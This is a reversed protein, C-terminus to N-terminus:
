FKATAAGGCPVHGPAARRDHARCGAFALALVQRPPAQSWRAHLFPVAESTVTNAKGREAPRATKVPSVQSSIVRELRDLGAPVTLGDAVIEDHRRGVAQKPPAGQRQERSARASTAEGTRTEPAHRCSSDTRNPSQVAIRSTALIKYGNHGASRDSARSARGFVGAVLRAIQRSISPLARPQNDPHGWAPHRPGTSRRRTPPISPGLPGPPGRVPWRTAGNDRREHRDFSIRLQRPIPRGNGPEVSRTEPTIGGGHQAVTVLVHQRLEGSSHPAALM